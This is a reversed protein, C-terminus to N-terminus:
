LICVISNLVLKPALFLFLSVQYKIQNVRLWAEAKLCFPSLSPKNAKPYPFQHLVVVDRPYSKKAAKRRSKIYIRIFLVTGVLGVIIALVVQVARNHVLSDLKFGKLWKPILDM